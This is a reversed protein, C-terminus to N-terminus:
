SSPLSRVHQRLAEAVEAIIENRRTSSYTFSLATVIQACVHDPAGITRLAAAAPGALGRERADCDARVCLGTEDRWLGAFIAETERPPAHGTKLSLGGREILYVFEQADRNMIERLQAFLSVASMQRQNGMQGFDRIVHHTTLVYVKKESGSYVAKNM